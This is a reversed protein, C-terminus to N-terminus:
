EEECSEILGILDAKRLKSYGSLGRERAIGTLQKVTMREYDIPEVQAVMRVRHSGSPLKEIEVEDGLAHRLLHEQNEFGYESSGMGLETLAAGLDSGRVWGDRDALLSINIRVAVGVEERYNRSRIAPGDDAGESYEFYQGYAMSFEALDEFGYLEPAALRHKEVEEIMKRLEKLNAWPSSTSTGPLGLVAYRLNLAPSVRVRTDYDDYTIEVLHLGLNRVLTRIRAFGYDTVKFDPCLEKILKPLDRMYAWGYRDEGLFIADKIITAIPVDNYAWPPMPDNPGRFKVRIDTRSSRAVMIEKGITESMMMHHASHFGESGVKFGPVLTRMTEMVSSLLVWHREGGNIKVATKVLDILSYEEEQDLSEGKDDVILDQPDNEEQPSWSAKGEENMELIRAYSEVKKMQIHYVEHFKESWEVHLRLASEMSLDLASRSLPEGLEPHVARNGVDAVIGFQMKDTLGVYKGIGFEKNWWDERKKIKKTPDEGRELGYTYFFLDYQIYEVAKRLKFAAIALDGDSRSIENIAQILNMSAQSFCKHRLDIVRADEPNNRDFARSQDDEPAEVPCECHWGYM